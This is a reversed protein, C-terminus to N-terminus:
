ASQVTRPCQKSAMVTIAVSWDDAGHMQGVRDPHDRAAIGNLSVTQDVAKALIEVYGCSIGGRDGLDHSHGAVAENGAAPTDALDLRAGEGTTEYALCTPGPTVAYGNPVLEFSRM